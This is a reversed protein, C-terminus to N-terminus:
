FMIEDQVIDGDTCHIVEVKSSGIWYVGTRIMNWQEKTGQFIIETLTFCNFFASVGINTVSNPIAISSLTSCRLFACEGICSVNNPIITNQCGVILTNTATEIIANCNGRSDYIPNGKEVKVSALSFCACFVDEGISTVSDPITVSSLSFCESFSSDGINTVSNHLSISTLSSCGTFTGSEISTM